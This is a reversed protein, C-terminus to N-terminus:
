TRWWLIHLHERKGVAWQWGVAGGSGVERGSGLQGVVAWNDWWQGVEGGSGLQGM